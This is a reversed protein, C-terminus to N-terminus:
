LYLRQKAYKQIGNGALPHGLLKMRSDRCRGPWARNRRYNHLFKDLLPSLVHVAKPWIVCATAWVTVCPTHNVYHCPVRRRVWEWGGQIETGVNLTMLANGLIEVVIRRSMSKNDAGATFMAFEGWNWIALQNFMQPLCKIFEIVAQPLM